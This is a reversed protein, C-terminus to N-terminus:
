GVLDVTAISNETPNPVPSVGYGSTSRGSTTITLTLFTACSLFCSLRTRFSPFHRSLNGFVSVPLLAVPVPLLAVSSTMLRCYPDSPAFQRWVRKKKVVWVLGPDTPSDSQWQLLDPQNWLCGLGLLKWPRMEGPEQTVNAVLAWFCLSHLHDLWNWTLCELHQVHCQTALTTKTSLM